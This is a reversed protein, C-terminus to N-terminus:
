LVGASRPDTQPVAIVRKEAQSHEHAGSSSQSLLGNTLIVAPILYVITVCTWMLAAACEQDALVPIAFSRPASLYIRYAVRDSFMLFGSLIDCPLTAMFLYLLISWQPMKATSPWPQVVPWWFLFGAMLFCTHEVVHWPESRLALTFAAPIHWCVLAAAAATWCVVPQALVRGVRQLPPWRFLPSVVSQVFSKPLGHLVPMVPAGIWILPPALTMLLLHQVMHVTLLQEDFAALPSGLALWILFLGVLFSGARWAPFVNPSVVHLRWWGRLYILAFLITALTLAIPPSWSALAAQVPPPM